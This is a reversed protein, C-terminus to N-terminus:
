IYLKPSSAGKLVNKKDKATKESADAKKTNSTKKSSDVNGTKSDMFKTKKKKRENEAAPKEENNEDADPLDKLGKYLKWMSPLNRVLPGYQQVMPSIQQATKLVQQTNNLFGNITGPNTLSKLLGGGSSTRSAGGAGLFSSMGANNGGGGKGLIKALLGGGQRQQTGKGMMQPFNGMPAMPRQGFPSSQMPYPRMSHQGMFPPRMGRSNMRPGQLM